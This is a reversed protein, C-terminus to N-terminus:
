PSVFFVRWGYGAVGIQYTYILVVSRRVSLALTLGDTTYIKNGASASGSNHAFSLTTGGQTNQIYLKRGDHGNAIGNITIAAVTAEVQISDVDPIDWNDLNGSPQARATSLAEYRDKKLMLNKVDRKLAEIEMVMRETFEDPM